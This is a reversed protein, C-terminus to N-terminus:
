DLLGAELITKKLEDKSIKEAYSSNYPENMNIRSIEPYLKKIKEEDMEEDMEEEKLHELNISGTKTTPTGVAIFIINCENVIRELNQSVVLSKKLAKQLIRSLDPEYFEIKGNRIKELKEKNSDIVLVSYGKTGLIAAFTLGVFGTGIIGIKM